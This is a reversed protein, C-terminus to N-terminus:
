PMRQAVHKLRLIEVTAESERVRYFVIYNRHIVLERVYAPLGPRGVRGMEPHKSLPHIKDRLEHGFTEARVPSDLAIYDIIKVLDEEAKPRWVIQYFRAAQIM